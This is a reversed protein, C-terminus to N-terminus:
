IRDICHSCVHTWLATTIQINTVMEVRTSNTAYHVDSFPNSTMPNFAWRRYFMVNHNNYEEESILQCPCLSLAVQSIFQCFVLALVVGHLLKWSDQQACSRSPGPLLVPLPAAGSFLQEDWPELLARAM